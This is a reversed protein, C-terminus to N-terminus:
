PALCEFNTADTDDGSGRYTAVLPYPCLPRTFPRSEVPPTGPPGAVVPPHSADLVDPVRGREVWEEMATLWDVAFAGEGGSCHNMGPVLYLSVSDRVADEGLADVVAEFYNVSNEFPILGDTTGHYILLKGGRTVFESLDPDMAATVGGDARDARDLDRTIDFTAPNWEPDNMVINRFYSTGIGFQPSAYWAWLPESGPGTGPMIVNGDTGVVGAYIRKAAAVEQAGLCQALQGEDCQVDVPDFDCEDPETIVRDTVGDNADCAAIAAENLVSLKDVAIGDPGLNNQIHISLAMLPTWNNAPAGAIVADYDDAFRQAELLGQRGGTSCGSWYSKEPATGYRAETIAKGVATLERVARYQYDILKEPQGVAWSFEGGAGQHGTDTNAVAYGRFLPEALSAYMIVGAAGGNGTQLFRGNWNDAPLWLEFRIDSDSTPSISGTVRCFAPLRSFDAIPGPVVPGPSQFAGAPVRAASVITTNAVLQTVLDECAIPSLSNETQPSTRESCAAALVVISSALVISVSVSPYKFM